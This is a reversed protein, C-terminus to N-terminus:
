EGVFFTGKHFNGEGVTLTAKLFRYVDLLSCPTVHRVATFKMVVAVLCEFWVSCRTAQERERGCVADPLKSEWGSMIHLKKNGRDGPGGTTSIIVWKMARALRLILRLM